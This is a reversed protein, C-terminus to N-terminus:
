ARPRPWRGRGAQLATGAASSRATRGPKGRYRRAGSRRAGKARTDAILKRLYWGYPHVIERQHTLLNDIEETEEGVGKITGRARSTNDLAGSDNHGFQMMVFDGPKLMALVRDGHGSTLYTRSSLGGVARNVVNLQAADFSAVIPEGWGWQGNV